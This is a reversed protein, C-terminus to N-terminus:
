ITCLLIQFNYALILYELFWGTLATFFYPVSFCHFNLHTEFIVFLINFLLYNICFTVFDLISFLYGICHVRNQCKKGNLLYHICIGKNVINQLYKKRIITAKYKQVFLQVAIKFKLKISSAVSFYLPLFM